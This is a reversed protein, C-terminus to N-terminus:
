RLTASLSAIDIIVSGRKENGPPVYAEGPALRHSSERVGVARCLGLAILLSLVRSMFNAKRHAVDCAVSDQAWATAFCDYVVIASLWHQSRTRL